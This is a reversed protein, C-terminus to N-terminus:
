RAAGVTSPTGRLASIAPRCDDMTVSLEVTGVGADWLYAALVPLFEPRRAYVTAIVGSATLEFPLEARCCM